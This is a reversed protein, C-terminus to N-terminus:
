PKPEPTSCAPELAPTKRVAPPHIRTRPTLFDREFADLKRSLELAPRAIWRELAAEVEFREIALRYLFRRLPLGLLEWRAASEDARTAGLVARRELADQLVSPTRLFQYYRLIAHAVLHIVAITPFGLGCEVFMLGVQTITAYALSSKADPSVQASLTAAAATVLGVGIILLRIVPSGSYLPEIRALLYVGAHVSLGGYFVASSATPGEMARPLWGGIPFQASKGMAALLFGLVVFTGGATAKTELVDAFSTSHADRHLLLASVLLGVDSLRYTVLLRIAARVPATREHFFAVLLVSTMGVLEWGAFLLEVSGGLLLLQIGSGFVLVLAFFRVFGPERHLYSVSFRCTALLLLGATLAVPMSVRDLLFVLEYSADGASYWHGIRVDIPRFLNATWRAAGIAVSAFSLLLATMAVAVVTRETPRRGLGLMAGILLAGAAPWAPALAIAVDSWVV